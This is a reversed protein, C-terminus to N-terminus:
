IKYILWYETDIRLNCILFMELTVVNQFPLSLIDRYIRNYSLILVLSQINLISRSKSVNTNGPSTADQYTLQTLFDITEKSIVPYTTHKFITGLFEFHTVCIISYLLWMASSSTTCLCLSFDLKM